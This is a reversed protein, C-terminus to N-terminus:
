TTKLYFVFLDEETKGNQFFISLAVLAIDVCEGSIGDRGNEKHKFGSLNQSIGIEQALEGCEEQLKLMRESITKPEKLALEKILNFDM